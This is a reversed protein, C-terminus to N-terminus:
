FPPRVNGTGVWLSRAFLVPAMIIDKPLYLVRPTPDDLDEKLEDACNRYNQAKPGISSLRTSGLNMCWTYLDYPSHTSACGSVLLLCALALISKKM